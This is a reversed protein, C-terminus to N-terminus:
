RLLEEASEKDIEMVFRATDYSFGQRALAALSKEIDEAKRSAFPGLRKKRAYTLAAAREAQENDEFTEQDLVALAKATKDSDIGKAQLRALIARRSLGRRRFSNVVGGLYADDNLLGSREFDRIVEDVMKACEEYDQDKHFHCSRKVKRMMVSRFHGSSAAFRQLYYLGANRLYDPTIRKPPRKKRKQGAPPKIQDASPKNISM